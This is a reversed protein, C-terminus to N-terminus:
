RKVKSKLHFNLLYGHYIEKETWNQYSKTVYYREKEYVSYFLYNKTKRLVFRKTELEDNEKAFEEFRSYSPNALAALVCLSLVAFGIKTLLQM